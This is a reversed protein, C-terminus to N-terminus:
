RAARGRWWLNLALMLAVFAVALWNWRSGAAVAVAINFLLMGTLILLAARDLRWRMAGEVTGM